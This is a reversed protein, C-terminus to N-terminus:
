ELLWESAEKGVIKPPNYATVTLLATKLERGVKWFVRVGLFKEGTVKSTWLDANLHFPPLLSMDIASKIDQCVNSATVLFIEGVTSSISEDKCPIWDKNMLGRFTPKEV